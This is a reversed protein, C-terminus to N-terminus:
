VYRTAVQFCMVTVDASTRERYHLSSRIESPLADPQMPAFGARAFLDLGDDTLAGSGVACEVFVYLARLSLENARSIMAQLLSSGANSATHDPAVVAARVLGLLGLVELAVVGVVGGGELGVFVDSLPFGSPLPPLSAGALLADIRDLDEPAARHIDM